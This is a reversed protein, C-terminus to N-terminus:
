PSGGDDTTGADDAPADPDPEPPVATPLPVPSPGLKGQVARLLERAAPTKSALADNVAANIAMWCARDAALPKVMGPTLFTGAPVAVRLRAGVLTRADAPAVSGDRLQEPIVAEDLDGAAIVQGPKLAWRAKLAPVSARVQQGRKYAVFLAVTVALVCVALLAGLLGGVLLRANSTEPGLESSM